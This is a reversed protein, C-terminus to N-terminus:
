KTDWNTTPHHCHNWHIIKEVIFFIIIGLLIYLSTSLGFGFEEITEPLLHIFADGLLAGASFSIFYMLFKKQKDAKISLTIIGVFALLSVILVSTLTYIWITPSAM